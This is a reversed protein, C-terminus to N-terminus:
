GPADLLDADDVVGDHLCAAAENLMPLILRDELDAPVQYDAAVDPKIAKGNEWKYFGQGDKKGRKGSKSSLDGLGLSRGESSIPQPEQRGLRM